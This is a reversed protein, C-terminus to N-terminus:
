KLIIMRRSLNSNGDTLRYVYTGSPLNEANFLFTHSGANFNGEAITTVKRGLLNYLDLAAHGGRPIEITIQTASNFPNPYNQALAFTLPAPGPDDASQFIQVRTTGMLWYDSGGPGGASWDQGGLILSGSDALCAANIRGHGTGYMRSWIVNALSDLGVMWGYVSSSNWVNSEGILVVENPGTRIIQDFINWATEFGDPHMPRSEIQNGEHDIRLLWGDGNPNDFGNSYGAIWYQNNMEIVSYAWDDPEGDHGYISGWLSDGNANVKIVETNYPVSSEWVGRLGVVLFGGDTTEIVDNAYDLDISGYRRSWLTDGNTAMKELWFEARLSDEWIQRSGVLLMAGDQTRIAQNLSMEMQGGTFDTEWIQQGSDTWAVVQVLSFDNDNGYLVTLNSDLPLVGSCSGMGPTEVRWRNALNHEADFRLIYWDGLQNPEDFWSGVMWIDNDPGRAVDYCSEFLPEQVIVSWLSDQEQAFLTLPLCVAVVLWSFKEM